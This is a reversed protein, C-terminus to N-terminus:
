PVIDLKTIWEEVQPKAEAVDRMPIHLGQSEVDAEPVLSRITAVTNSLGSGASAAFPIVKKGSFDYEELFSYVAMPMDGWWNPYGIFVINYDAMNDVHSALEPRVNGRKENGGQDILTDYDVPYTDVTKISFLDGGVIEQIMEALAEVNGQTRGGRITISASSLADVDADELSTGVSGYPGGGQIIEDLSADTNDLRTFYAVLIKDGEMTKPDETGTLVMDDSQNIEPEQTQEPVREGSQSSCASMSLTFVVMFLLIIIRKM